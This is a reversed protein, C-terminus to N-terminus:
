RKTGGYKGSGKHATSSSTSTGGTHTPTKKKLLPQKAKEQFVKSPDLNNIIHEAPMESQADGQWILPQYLCTWQKSQPSPGYPTFTYQWEPLGLQSIMLRYYAMFSSTLYYWYLARDLFWVECHNALMGPTCNQYVLCVKGNGNCPDLEFIRTSSDFRPLRPTDEPGETEEESDLDALTPASPLSFVASQCLPCLKAVSNIVMSGLTVPENELKCSWSLTFGDITLYFDRLDEPLVCCNKQEWSLLCRREAPAREVFRVDLVGPLSELVRTIGLTLREAFGKFGRIDKNEEM